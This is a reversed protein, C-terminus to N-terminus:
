VHNQDLGGHYGALAVTPSQTAPCGVPVCCVRGRAAHVNASRQEAGCVTPPLTHPCARPASVLVLTGTPFFIKMGSGFAFHLESTPLQFGSTPSVKLATQLPDGFCRGGGCPLLLRVM